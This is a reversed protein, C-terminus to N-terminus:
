GQPPPRYYSGPAPPAQNPDMNQGYDYLERYVAAQVCFYIPGLFLVGIGCLLCGALGVLGSVFVLAVASGLSAKMDNLSQKIAEVATMGRELVLLGAPLMLGYFILGPIICMYTLITGLLAILLSFAVLQVYRGQFDFATSVTAPLGRMRLLAIRAIGISIPATLAGVLAQAGMQMYYLPSSYMAFPNRQLAEPGGVSAIVMGQMILGVPVTIIMTAVLWVFMSLAYTGIDKTLTAWADTFADFTVRRGSSNPQM